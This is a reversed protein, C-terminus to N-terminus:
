WIHWSRYFIPEGAVATKGPAELGGSEPQKSKKRRRLTAKRDTHVSKATGEWAVATTQLISVLATLACFAM